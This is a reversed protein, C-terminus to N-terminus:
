TIIKKEWLEPTSLDLILIDIPKTEKSVEGRWKHIAVNESHGWM